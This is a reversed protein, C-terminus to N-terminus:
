LIDQLSITKKIEEQKAERSSKFFDKENKESKENKKGEQEGNKENGDLFDENHKKM